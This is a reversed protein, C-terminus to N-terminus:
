PLMEIDAMKLQGGDRQLTMVIRWSRPAPTDKGPGVADAKSAVLIVASDNTMSEVVVSKVVVKTSVKSREITKVLDDATVLMKAKFPGTSDDIIHQVDKRASDASISMLTIARERAAATFEAARQHEATLARHHWVVYGSAGVGACTVLLAAAVALSKRTPRRFWSRRLRAPGASTLALNPVDDEVDAGDIEDADASAKMDLQESAGAELQERLRIAHVRAIAARAETRAVEEMAEAVCPDRDLRADLTGRQDDPSPM